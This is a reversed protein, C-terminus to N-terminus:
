DIRLRNMLLKSDVPEPLNIYNDYYTPTSPTSPSNPGTSTNSFTQSRYDYSSVTGSSLGASYLSTGNVLDNQVIIQDELDDVKDKNRYKKRLYYKEILKFILYACILATPIIVLIILSNKLISIINNFFKKIPHQLSKGDESVSNLDVLDYNFLGLGIEDVSRFYSSTGVNSDKIEKPILVELNQTERYLHERILVTDYQPLPLPM